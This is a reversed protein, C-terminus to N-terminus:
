ENSGLFYIKYLPLLNKEIDTLNDYFQQWLQIFSDIDILRVHVSSDRAAKEADPTFRGSTVFLGIEGAKNNITGILSKIDNVPVKFDPKHKVQVKIRPELAGLPDRYAVVDIGGDKGKLSIFPTYYKMARLLAGTLMTENIPTQGLELEMAIIERAFPLSDHTFHEFVKKALQLAKQETETIM